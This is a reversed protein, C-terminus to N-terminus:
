PEPAAGGPGVAQSRGGVRPVAWFVVLVLGGPVLIRAADREVAGAQSVCRTSGGYRDSSCRHDPGRDAAWAVAMGTLLVFMAISWAVRTRTRRVGLGATAAPILGLAAVVLGLKVAPGDDDDSNYSAGMQGEYRHDAASGLGVCVVVTALVLLAVVGITRM